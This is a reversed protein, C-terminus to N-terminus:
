NQPCALYGMNPIPERYVWTGFIQTHSCSWSRGSPDQLYNRRRSQWGVELYLSLHSQITVLYHGFFVFFFVTKEQFNCEEGRRTLRGAKDNSWGGTPGCIKTQGKNPGHSKTTTLSQLLKRDHDWKYSPPIPNLFSPIKAQFYSV